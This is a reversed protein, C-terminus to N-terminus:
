WTCHLCGIALIGCRKDRDELRVTKLFFPIIVFLISIFASFHTQQSFKSKVIESM